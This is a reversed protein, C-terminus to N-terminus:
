GSGSQAAVIGFDTDYIGYILSVFVACFLKTFNRPGNFMFIKDNQNM